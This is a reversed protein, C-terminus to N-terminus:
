IPHKQSTMHLYLKDFSHFDVLIDKCSVVFEFNRLLGVQFFLTPKVWADKSRRNWFSLTGLQLCVFYMTKHRENQPIDEVQLLTASVNWKELVLLINIVLQSFQISTSFCAFEAILTKFSKQLLHATVSFILFRRFFLMHTENTYEDEYMGHQLSEIM